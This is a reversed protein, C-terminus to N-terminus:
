TRDRVEGEQLFETYWNSTTVDGFRYGWRNQARKKRGLPEETVSDEDSWDDDSWVDSDYSSLSDLLSREDDSDFLSDDESDDSENGDKLDDLSAKLDCFLDDWGDDDDCDELDDEFIGLDEDVSGLFDQVTLNRRNRQRKRKTM